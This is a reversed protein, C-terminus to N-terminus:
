TKPIQHPYKIVDKKQFIIKKKSLQKYNIMTGNDNGWIPTRLITPTRKIEMQYITNYCIAVNKISPELSQMKRRNNPGFKFRPMFAM